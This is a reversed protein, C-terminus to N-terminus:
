VQVDEADNAAEGGYTCSDLSIAVFKWLKRCYAYYFGSVTQVSNQVVSKM